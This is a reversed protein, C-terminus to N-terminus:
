WKHLDYVQLSRTLVDLHCLKLHYFQFYVNKPLCNSQHVVSDTRSVLPVTHPMSYAKSPKPFTKCPCLLITTRQVPSSCVRVRISRVSINTRTWGFIFSRSCENKKSVDFGFPRKVGIQSNNVFFGCVPFITSRWKHVFFGCLKKKFFEFLMKKGKLVIWCFNKQYFIVTSKKDVFSAEGYEQTKLYMQTWWTISLLNWILMLYFISDIYSTM